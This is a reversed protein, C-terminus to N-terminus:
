AKSQKNKHTCTIGREKKHHQHQNDSPPGTESKTQRHLVEGRPHLTHGQLRQSFAEACVRGKSSVVEV